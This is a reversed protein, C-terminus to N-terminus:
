ITASKRRGWQIRKRWQIYQEVAGTREKRRTRRRSRSRDSPSPPANSQYQNSTLSPPQVIGNWSLPLDNHPFQWEQFAPIIPYLHAPTSSQTPRANTKGSRTQTMTSTTSYLDQFTFNILPLHFSSNLPHAVDLSLVKEPWPATSRDSSIEWSLGLM